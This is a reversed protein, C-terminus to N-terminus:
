GEAGRTFVLAAAQKDAEHELERCLALLEPSRYAGRRLYAPTNIEAVLEAYARRLAKGAPTLQRAEEFAASLAATLDRDM